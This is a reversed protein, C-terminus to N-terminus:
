ELSWGAPLQPQNTAAPAPATVTERVFVEPAHRKKLDAPLDPYYRFTKVQNSLASKLNDAFGKTLALYDNQGATGVVDNMNKEENVTLTAGFVDKRYDQVVKAIQQQILRAEKKEDTTLGKYKGEARFTPADIPGVYENFANTGYKQNFQEVRKMASDLQMVANDAALISTQTKAPVKAGARVVNSAEAVAGADELDIIGQTAMDRVANQIKTNGVGGALLAETKQRALKRDEERKAQLSQFDILPVGNPGRKPFGTEPDIQFAGLKVADSMLEADFRDAQLRASDAAKMARARASYQDLGQVAKFAEQQYTKSKFVPAQPIKGQPDPNNLFDAVQQNFQNFADFETNMAEQEKLSQSLANEQARMQLEQSRQRMLQEGAQMQLQQQIRQNEIRRQAMSAGLSIAQLQNQLAVNEM